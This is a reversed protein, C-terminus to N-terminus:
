IAKKLEELKKLIEIDDVQHLNLNDNQYVRYLLDFIEGFSYHEKTLSDLIELVEKRTKEIATDITSEEIFPEFIENIFSNPINEMKPVMEFGRDGIKLIQNFFVISIATQSLDYNRKYGKTEWEGSKRKAINNSIYTNISNVAHKYTIGTQKYSAAGKIASYLIAYGESVSFDELILELKEIIADGIHDIDFNYKEFLHNTYENLEQFAIERWLELAEEKIEDINYAKIYECKKVIDTFSLSNSNEINLEFSSIYPAYSYNAKEKFTIYDLTNQTIKFRILSDNILENIISFGYPKTPAFSIGDIAEIPKFSHNVEDYVYMLLTLLYTKQRLDLEVLQELNIARKESQEILKKLSDIKLKDETEKEEIKKEICQNCNCVMYSHTPIIHSCRKCFLEKKYGDNFSTRSDPKHYMEVNCYECLTSVKTDPLQKTIENTKITLGYKELVKTVTEEGYYYDKIFSNFQAEDLDQINM